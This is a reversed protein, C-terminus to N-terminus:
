PRAITIPKPWTYTDVGPSLPLRENTEENYFGIKLQYAGDPLDSGLSIQHTDVIVEGPQWTTTLAVGGQPYGDGQAVTKEVADALHIFVKWNGATPRDARWILTVSITEGAKAAQPAAVRALQIGEQWEVGAPEGLDPMTFLRERDTIVLPGLPLSLLGAQEGARTLTLTAAYEGPALTGPLPFEPQM